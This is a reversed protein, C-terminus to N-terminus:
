VWAFGNYIRITFGGGSSNKLLFIQGKKLNGTPLIDGYNKETLLLPVNFRFDNEGWDFVPIGRGISATKVRSAIKDAVLIQVDYASEYNLDTLPIEVYYQNGEPAVEVDHYEGYAGLASKIQYKLTINNHVAGFTDNFYNGWVTLTANGSTPDDRVLQANCTLKIYMVMDCEITYSSKYGRSDTATFTINRIMAEPFYRVNSEVVGGAITKQVISSGNRASASIICVTKSCYRVLIYENGTLGVTSALEDYVVGSVIPACKDKSATVKFTTTQKDGVQNNGNYTTCILTCVGSISNPIEAYFSEPVRFSITSRSIKVESDSVLGNEDIYGSIRGFEFKISHTHVNVIRNSIIIVSNSEIDADTAGITAAGPLSDILSM